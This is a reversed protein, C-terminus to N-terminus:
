AVRSWQLVKWPQDVALEFDFTQVGGTFHHTKAGPRVVWQQSYRIRLEVNWTRSLRTFQAYSRDTVWAGGEIHGGDRYLRDLSDIIRTCARCANDSADTLARTDGTAQAHNILKVYYKVFEVAGARTNKTAQEPMTPAAVPTPTTGTPTAPAPPAAPQPDGGCGVLLVSLVLMAVYRRM